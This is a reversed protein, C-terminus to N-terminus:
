EPAIRWILVRAKIWTREDTNDDHADVLDNITHAFEDMKNEIHDVRSGIAPIEGTFHKTLKMIHAHTTGRLLVLMDKLATESVPQNTAPFSLISEPLERTNDLSDSVPSFEGMVDRHDGLRIRLKAPSGQLPTSAAPSLSTVPSGGVWPRWFPGSSTDKLRRTFVYAIRAM